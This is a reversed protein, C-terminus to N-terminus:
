YSETINLGIGELNIQNNSQTTGTVILFLEEDTALTHNASLSKSANSSSLKIDTANTTLQTMSGLSSTTVEDSLMSALKLTADITGTGADSSMQGILYFGSVVDGIRLGSLPIVLTSGTHDSPLNGISGIDSGSLSWGSTAGVKGGSAIVKVVDKTGTLTPIEVGSETFKLLVTGKKNEVVGDRIKAYTIPTSETTLDWAVSDSTNADDINDLRFRIYIGSKEFDNEFVGSHTDSFEDPYNGEFTQILDNYTGPVKTKELYITGYFSESPAVTLTYDIKSKYPVFLYGSTQGDTDFTGSLAFLNAGLISVCFLAVIGIKIKSKFDM